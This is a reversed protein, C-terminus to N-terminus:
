VIQATAPKWYTVLGTNFLAEARRDYVMVAQNTQSVVDEGYAVRFAPYRALVEIQQNRKPREGQFVKRWGYTQLIAIAMRIDGEDVPRNDALAKDMESAVSSM